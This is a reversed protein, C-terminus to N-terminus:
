RGEAHRAMEEALQVRQEPTLIDHVQLMGDAAKHALARMEDIRQDVLAHVRQGDPRDSKWQEMLADHMQRREAFLPAAQQLLGDKITLVQQRQGDTAKLDDLADNVRWTIFKAVKQPDPHRGMGGYAFGSLAVVAVAALGVMGAVKLTKKM